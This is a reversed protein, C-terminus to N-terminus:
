GISWVNVDDFSGSHMDDYKVEGVIKIIEKDFFRCKEDSGFFM